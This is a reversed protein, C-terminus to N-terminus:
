STLECSDDHCKRKQNNNCVRGRCLQEGATHEFDINLQWEASCSRKELAINEGAIDCRIM